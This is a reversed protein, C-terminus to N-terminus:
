FGILCRIALFQLTINLIMLNKLSTSFFVIISNVIPLFVKASNFDLSVDYLSIREPM